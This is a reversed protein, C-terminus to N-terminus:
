LTEEYIETTAIMTADVNNSQKNVTTELQQQETSLEDMLPSASALETSIRTAVEMELTPILGASELSVHTVNEFTGLRTPQNDQDVISIDIPKTSETELQYQIMIPNQSLWQKFLEVTAINKKVILLNNNVFIGEETGHKLSNPLIKLRDCVINSMFNNVTISYAKCDGNSFNARISWEESGNLAMEGIRETVQGTLCDLEDEVDGVKRLELDKPTSLNIAQYPEYPTSIKGEEFQIQISSLEEKKLQHKVSLPVSQKM